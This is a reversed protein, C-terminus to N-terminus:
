KEDTGRLRHKLLYGAGTMGALAAGVGFGPGSDDSSDDATGGTSDSDGASNTNDEGTTGDSGDGDSGTTDDSGDGGDGDATEPETPVWQLQPFGDPDTVTRWTAEFDLNTMGNSAAEGTMEAERRGEGPTAGASFEITDSNWYSDEVTADDAGSGVIAGSGDVSGAAYCERVTGSSLNTGVLGSVARSEGTVTATSYSKEILGYNSGALGGVSAGTASVSGTTFCQSVTGRNTGIVGSVSRGGSIDVDELGVREITGEEATGYFLAANDTDPRDITLGTIVYERGDFSGVFTADFNGVPAFGAGDNWDSTESADIDNGLAFAAEVDGEVAQLEVVDTIIYPDSESGGGDMEALIDEYEDPSPGGSQAGVPGAAALGVAGLAVGGTARLVQRRSAVKPLKSDSM